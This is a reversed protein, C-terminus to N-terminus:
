LTKLGANGPCMCCRAPMQVESSQCLGRWPGRSPGSGPSPVRPCICSPCPGQTSQAGPGPGPQHARRNGRPGRSERGTSLPSHTGLFVLQAIITNVSTHPSCSHIRSPPLPVLPVQGQRICAAQMVETSLLGSRHSTGMYIRGQAALVLRQSQFPSPPLWSGPATHGHTHAPPEM